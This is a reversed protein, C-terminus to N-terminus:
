LNESQHGDSGGIDSAEPRYSPDGLRVTARIHSRNEQRKYQCEEKWTNHPMATDYGDTSQVYDRSCTVVQLNFLKHALLADVVKFLQRRLSQQTISIIM